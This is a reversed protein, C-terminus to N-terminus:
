TCYLRGKQQKKCIKKQTVNRALLDKKQIRPLGFCKKACLFWSHIGVQARRFKFIFRGMLTSWFRLEEPWFFRFDLNSPFSTGGFGTPMRWVLLEGASRLPGLINNDGTAPCCVHRISSSPKQLDLVLGLSARYQGCTGKLPKSSEYSATEKIHLAWPLTVHVNYCQVPSSLLLIKPEQMICMRCALHWLEKKRGTSSSAFSARKAM